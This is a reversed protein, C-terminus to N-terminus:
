QLCLPAPAHSTCALPIPIPDVLAGLFSRDILTTRPHIFPHICASADRLDFTPYETACPADNLPPSLVSSVPWPRHAAAGAQAATRRQSPHCSCGWRGRVGHSRSAGSSGHEEYKYVTVWVGPSVERSVVVRRDYGCSAILSGYRPHSWTVQWVPGEHRCCSPGGSLCCRQRKHGKGGISCRSPSGFARSM